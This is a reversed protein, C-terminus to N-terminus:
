LRRKGFPPTLPNQPGFLMELPLKRDAAYKLLTAIQIRNTGALNALMQHFESSAMLQLDRAEFCLEVLLKEITAQREVEAQKEAEAQREQLM